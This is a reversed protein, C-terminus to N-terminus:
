TRPSRCRTPPPSCSASCLSRSPRPRRQLPSTRTQSLTAAPGWQWHQQSGSSAPAQLAQTQLLRRSRIPARCARPLLRGTVRFPHWHRCPHRSLAPPLPPPPTSNFCPRMMMVRIHVAVPSAVPQWHRAPILPCVRLCTVTGTGSGTHRQSQCHQRLRLGGDQGAVSRSLSARLRMAMESIRTGGPAPGPGAVGIMRTGAWHCSSASACGPMVRVRLGGTASATGGQAHVQRGTSTGTAGGLGRAAGSGTRRRHTGGGGGSDEGRVRLPAHVHMLGGEGGPGAAARATRLRTSRRIPRSDEDEAALPLLLLAATAAVKGTAASAAARAVQRAVPGYRLAAGSVANCATVSLTLRLRSASAAAGGTARARGTGASSGNTSLSDTDSEGPAAGPGSVCTGTHAAFSGSAASASRAGQSRRLRQLLPAGGTRMAGAADGTGRRPSAVSAVAQAASDAPWHLPPGSVPLLACASASAAAPATGTGSATDRGTRAWASGSATGRWRLGLGGYHATDADDDGSGSGSSGSGSGSGVQVSAAFAARLHPRGPIPSPTPTPAALSAAATVLAADAHM